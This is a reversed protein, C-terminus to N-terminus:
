SRVTPARRSSRKFRTERRLRRINREQAILLKELEDNSLVELQPVWKSAETMKRFGSDLPEEKKDIGEFKLYIMKILQLSDHFCLYKVEEVIRKRYRFLQDRIGHAIIGVYEGGLGLEASLQRSFVEPANTNTNNLDWEFKDRLNM